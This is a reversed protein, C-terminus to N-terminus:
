FTKDLNPPDATGTHVARERLWFLGEDSPVLYGDDTAHYSANTVTTMDTAGFSHTTDSLEILEDPATLMLSPMITVGSAVVANTEFTDNTTNFVRWDTNQQSYLVGFASYLTTGANNVSRENWANGHYSYMLGDSAVVTPRGDHVVPNTLTVSTTDIEIGKDYLARDRKRMGVVHTTNGVTYSLFGAGDRYEAQASSVTESNPVDRVESWEGTGFRYQTYVGSPTVALTMHDLSMVTLVAGGPPQVALEAPGDHALMNYVKGASVAVVRRSGASAHTVNTLTPYKTLGRSEGTVTTRGVVKTRTSLVQQVTLPVDEDTTTFTVSTLPGNTDRFVTYLATDSDDGDMVNSSVTITQFQEQGLQFLSASPISSM